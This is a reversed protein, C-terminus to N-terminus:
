PQAEKSATHQWGTSYLTSCSLKKVSWPVMEEYMPNNIYCLIHDKSRALSLRLLKSDVTQKHQRRLPTTAPQHIFGISCATIM